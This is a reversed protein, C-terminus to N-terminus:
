GRKVINLNLKCSLWGLGRETLSYYTHKETTDKSMLAHEVLLEFDDRPNGCWYNRYAEYSAKGHRYKVSSSNDYGIMHSLSAITVDMDLGRNKFVEALAPQETLYESDVMESDDNDSDDESEIVSLGMIYGDCGCNWLLEWLSIFNDNHVFHPYNYQPLQITEEMSDWDIYDEVAVGFAGADFVVEGKQGNPLKVADGLYIENGEEDFVGSGVQSLLQLDKNKM